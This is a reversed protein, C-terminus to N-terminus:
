EAEGILRYFPMGWAKGLAGMAMAELPSSDTKAIVGVFM